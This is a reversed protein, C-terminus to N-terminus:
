EGEPPTPQSPIWIRIFHTAKIVTSGFMFEDDLKSTCLGFNVGYKKSYFWYWENYHPHKNAVSVWKPQAAKLQEIELKQKTLEVSLKTEALQYELDAIREDKRIIIEDCHAVEQQAVQWEAKLHELEKDQAVITEILEVVLLASITMNKLGADKAAYFAAELGIIQKNTM